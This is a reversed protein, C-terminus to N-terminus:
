YDAEIYVKAVEINAAAAVAGNRIDAHFCMGTNVAPIDTTYSTDLIVADTNLNVIRVFLESGGQALFMTLDYGINVGRAEGLDVKVPSGSGDNRFFQWNGTDAADYGMGCMNLAFSTSPDGALANTNDALGIFFQAGNLNISSGFQAQFYFGGFGAAGGRYWQRYATRMGTANGATTSTQFRKRSTGLWRNSSAFTQQLSMTAATTLTGGIVNPAATGSTPSIYFLSNNSLIPQLRTDLGSPGIFAPMTRGAVARGFLKVGGAAPAAPTAIAPLRLQGGEIEVDAAGAFAGGSNFQVEGSAGGPSGSGGSVAV